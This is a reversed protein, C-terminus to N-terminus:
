VAPKPDEPKKTKPNIKGPERAQVPEASSRVLTHQPYTTELERLRQEATDWQQDLMAKRALALLLYPKQADNAKALEDQLVKADVAALGETVSRFVVKGDPTFSMAEYDTYATPLDLATAFTSWQADVEKQKFYKWAYNAGLAVIVGAVIVYALSRYREWLMEVQSPAQTGELNPTPTASM